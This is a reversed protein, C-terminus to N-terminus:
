RRQLRVVHRHQPPWAVGNPTSSRTVISWNNGAIWLANSNPRDGTGFGIQPPYHIWQRHGASTNGGGYDDMYADVAEVGTLGLVINSHDDDDSGSAAYCHWNIPPAHSLVNSASMM